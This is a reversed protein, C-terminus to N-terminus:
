VIKIIVWCIGQILDILVNESLVVEVKDMDISEVRFDNCDLKDLVKIERGMKENDVISNCLLVVVKKYRKRNRDIIMKYNRIISYHVKICYVKGVM